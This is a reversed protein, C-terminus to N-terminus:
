ANEIARRIAKLHADNIGADPRYTATRDIADDPLFEFRCTADADLCREDDSDCPEIVAVVALRSAQLPSMLEALGAEAALQDGAAAHDLVAAFAQADPPAHRASWLTLFVGLEPLISREDAQAEAIVLSLVGTAILEDRCELAWKLVDLLAPRALRSSVGDTAVAPTPPEPVSVCWNPAVQADPAPLHHIAPVPGRRASIVVSVPTATILVGVGEDIRDALISRRTCELRRELDPAAIICLGRDEARPLGIPGCTSSAFRAPNEWGTRDRRLSACRIIEPVIMAPDAISSRSSAQLAAELISEPFVIPEYPTGQRELTAWVRTVLRRFAEMRPQTPDDSPFRCAIQQPSPWPHWRGDLRSIFPFQHRFFSTPGKKRSKTANWSDTNPLVGFLALFALGREIDLARQRQRRWERAAHDDPSAPRAQQRAPRPAVGLATPHHRVGRPTMGLEDATQHISLGEETRLRGIERDRAAALISRANTL